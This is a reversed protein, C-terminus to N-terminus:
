NQFRHTMDVTLHEDEIKYFRQNTNASSLPGLGDIYPGVKIYDFAFVCNSEVDLDSSGSYWATKLGRKKAGIALEQVEVLNRDGGMFCVCTIGVNENILQELKESNLLEGIDERLYPSHCGKCKFPCNSLNIALTIEDPVESFVVKTDVYKLM